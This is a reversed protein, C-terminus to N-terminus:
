LTNSRAISPAALTSDKSTREMEEMERSLQRTLSQVHTTLREKTFGLSKFSDLMQFLGDPAMKNKEHLIAHSMAKMQGHSLGQKEDSEDRASILSNALSTIRSEEEEGDSDSDDVPMLQTTTLM